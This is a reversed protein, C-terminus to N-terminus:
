TARLLDVREAVERYIALLIEKRDQDDTRRYADLALDRMIVLQEPPGELCAEMWVQCKLCPLSVM